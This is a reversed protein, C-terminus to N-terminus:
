IVKLFVRNVKPATQSVATPGLDLRVPIFVRLGDTRHLNSDGGQLIARARFDIM